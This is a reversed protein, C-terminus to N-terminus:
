ILNKVSSVYLGTNDFSIFTLIDTTSAKATVTYSSGSVQRIGAGLSVSGSTAGQTIKLNITQGPLQGSATIYTNVSAPLTLNFFNGRALNLSATLSSVSQSVPAGYLSGTLVTSGTITLQNTTLTTGNTNLIFSQPFSGSTNLLKIDRGNETSLVLDNLGKAGISLPYGNNINTIDNVALIAGDFFSSTLSRNAYSASLAYSASTASNATNSNDSYSSSLSVVASSATYAYSSSLVSMSGTQSAKILDESRLTNAQNGMGSHNTCYYFLSSSTAYDVEIETYNTGVTVGVDYTTPGNATLSFRFPHSGVVGSTDFKYTEGPVFTVVPNAVGDLIYNVAGNNTVVITNVSKQAFSASLAYSASTANLANSVSGTIVNKFNASGTVVLPGSIINVTGWLTQTDDSADGLQNSGSAYIISSSQFVVNLFAVSATGTVMVNSMTVDSNFTNKGSFTQNNALVAFSATVANLSAISSSNSTLRTSASGSFVNYSASLAIYSASVQQTSSSVAQLSQSTNTIRTSASGSFVNYSASLAIYSASLQQNSSSVATLSATTAFGNSGTGQLLLSNQALSASNAQNSFDSYSSSVVSGSQAVTLTFSTGDGKTFTLINSSVSGTVIANPTSSATLAFSSTTSRVASSATFAYSASISTSASAVNGAVFSATSALIAFSATAVSMSSTQEAFVTSNIWDTNLAKVTTPTINGTSNDVYTSNSDAIIQLKTAM